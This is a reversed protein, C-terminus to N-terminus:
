QVVQVTLNKALKRFVDKLTAEDPAMYFIGNGNDAVAQMTAEDTQTGFTIAHVVVDDAALTTATDPPYVGENYFGDTLVIMVKTATVRTSADLIEKGAVMGASINTGGILKKNGINYAKSNISSFNNTLYLEKTSATSSCWVGYYYYGPVNSSYSSMGVETRTSGANMETVFVQLARELAAWRSANGDPRELYGYPLTKPHPYQWDIGAMDFSMSASRDLVLVVDVDRNAAVSSSSIAHAKDGFIGGFAVPLNQSGFRDFVGNIKVSNRPWGGATFNFSDDANRDSNGIVIDDPSLAFPIGAVKFKGANNIAYNRAESENQTLALKSMALRACSDTAVRLETEALEVRAVEISVAAMILMATLLFLIMIAISGKRHQMRSGLTQHYRILFSETSM